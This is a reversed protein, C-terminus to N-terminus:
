VFDGATTIHNIKKLWLGAHFLPQVDVKINSKINILAGNQCVCVWHKAVCVDLLCVNFILNISKIMQSLLNIQM